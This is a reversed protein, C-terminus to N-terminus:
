NWNLKFYFNWIILRKIVHGKLIYLRTMMLMLIIALDSKLVYVEIYLILFFFYLNQCKNTEMKKDSSYRKLYWTIKNKWIKLNEFFFNAWFISLGVILTSIKPVQSLQIPQIKDIEMIQYKIHLHNVCWKSINLLPEL